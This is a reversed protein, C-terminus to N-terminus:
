PHPKLLEIFALATPSLMRRARTVLEYRSTPAPLRVRLRTVMGFGAYHRALAQPMVTIADSQQLMALTAVISVTEILVSPVRLGASALMADVDRRMPSDPTQLLWSAGALDSLAVSRRRALPHSVRAVICLPEDALPTADLDSLDTDAPLPCVALDLTGMRLADLMVESTNVLVFLKVGPRQSQMHRIAPALLEPVAGTVGGIRLTGTAGAALASLEGRAEGLEAFLTRAYRVLTEGYATAAMGWAHRTFLPLGVAAELDRLLKTAAPQTLAIEGAAQRLSGRQALAVVLALQKLKLRNAFTRDDTAPAQM